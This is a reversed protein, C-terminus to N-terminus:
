TFISKTSEYDRKVEEATLARNYIRVQDIVGAFPINYWQNRGIWVDIDSQVLAGSAKPTMPAGNVYLTLDSGDFTGVVRYWTNISLTFSSVAASWATGIGIQFRILDDPNAQLAYGTYNKTDGVIMVVHGLASPLASWKCWAALTFKTLTKLITPHGLGVYDDVGDFSLAWGFPGDIWSAGYIKGHNKYPSYDKVVGGAGEHM